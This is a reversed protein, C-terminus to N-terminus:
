SWGSITATIPTTSQGGLDEWRAGTITFERVSQSKTPRQISLAVYNQGRYQFTRGYRPLPKSALMRCRVTVDRRHAIMGVAIVNGWDDEEVQTDGAENDDTSLVTGWDGGVLGGSGIQIESLGGSMLHAPGFIIHRSTGGAPPPTAANLSLTGTLALISESRLPVAATARIEMGGTFSTYYAAM